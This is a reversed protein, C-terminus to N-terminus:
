PQNYPHGWKIAVFHGFPDGPILRLIFPATYIYLFVLLLNIVLLLLPNIKKFKRKLIKYSKWLIILYITALLLSLLFGLLLFM